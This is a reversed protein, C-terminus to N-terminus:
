SANHPQPQPQNKAAHTISLPCIVDFDSWDRIGLIWGRILIYVAWCEVAFPPFGLYGLMPMEFVKVNGLYPVTYTWKSIAWYNWFEWLIGCLGGAILLSLLRRYDGRRIDGAISPYGRLANIPDLAMILGLWVMPVLWASIVVLPMAACVAGIVIMVYLSRDSLKLPRSSKIGALSTAAILEATEFLAPSITAFAWDYGIRRLFLNPELNHYHWWLEVDSRWFRPANYLEFLWWSSISVVAIILFEARNTVLLSRGKIKYVLSDVFLIYGSWVMPTFWHGVFESGRFLLAEAALIILLGIYGHFKLGTSSRKTVEDTSM